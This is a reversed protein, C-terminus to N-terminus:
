KNPIIIRQGPAPNKGAPIGNASRIRDATVGYQRAIDDLTEGTKILHRTRTAAPPTSRRSTTSPQPKVPSTSIEEDEAPRAPAPRSGGKKLEAMEESMSQLKAELAQIREELAKTGEPSGGGSTVMRGVDASVKQFDDRMTEVAALRSYMTAYDRTLTQIDNTNKELQKSQKLYATSKEFDSGCGALLLVSFAFVYIPHITPRM